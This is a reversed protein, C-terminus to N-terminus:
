MVRRRGVQRPPATFLFPHGCNRCAYESYGHRADVFRIWHGLFFCVLPHRIVSEGDRHQVFTHGCHCAYRDRRRAVGGRPRSTRVPRLSVTRAQRLSREYRVSGRWACLPASPWLPRLRVGRPRRAGRGTRLTHHRLFCSLTHGVRVVGNDDGLCERACRTCARTRYRYVRNDVAHGWVRCFMRRFM